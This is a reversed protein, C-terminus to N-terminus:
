TPLQNGAPWPLGRFRTYGNRKLWLLSQRRIPAPLTKLEVRAQHMSLILTGKTFNANPDALLISKKGWELDFAILARDRDAIFAELETPKKPEAGLM